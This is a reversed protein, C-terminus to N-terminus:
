ASANHIKVILPMQSGAKMDKKLYPRTVVMTRAVFEEAPVALEFEFTRLLTFLLAKMEILAFRYGICSRAGGLFTMMNGWVGPMEKAAEPPSAWRDPNFEHADEGWIEKSLNMALIPILVGEGKKIRIETQTRGRTDVFPENLPIVDDRMAVRGTAPVAAHVRLTERVVADLFPLANLEEMSLEDTPVSLLEARLRSQIDQRKSLAFLCWMTETSTTEHGAVLFTPVQALVDEDSLRQADPLETDMNAKVLVSLLDRGRLESLTEETLGSAIDKDGTANEKRLKLLGTGIRRMTDQAREEEKGSKTPIFRLVPFRGQIARLVNSAGGASFLISFANNLENPKDSVDLSNFNYDFGALGIIDLTARSLWALVDITQPSQKESIGSKLVDRLQKSKQFFVATLARITSPGFSPNMIRRQQRHQDGETVLVGPGVIRSLSVRAQPPRQYDFSHTMIHNIAKMDLTFLRDEGFFGKCKMVKGYKEVWGVSGERLKELNGSIYSDNEPGPLYRLPSFLPRLLHRVLRLLAYVALTTGAAQALPLM